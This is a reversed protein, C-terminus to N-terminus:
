RQARRCAYYVQDKIQDPTSNKGTVYVANLIFQIEKSTLEKDRNKAVVTKTREIGNDREIATMGTLLMLVECSLPETASSAFSCLALVSCSISNKINIM